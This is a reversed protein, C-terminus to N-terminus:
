AHYMDPTNLANLTKTNRASNANNTSNTNITDLVCKTNGIDDTCRSDQHGM